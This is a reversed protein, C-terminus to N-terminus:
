HGRTEKSDKLEMTWPSGWLWINEKTAHRRRIRWCKSQNAAQQTDCLTVHFLRVDAERGCQMNRWLLTLTM